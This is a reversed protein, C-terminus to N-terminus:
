KQKVMWDNIADGVKALDADEESVLAMAYTKGNEQVVADGKNNCRM